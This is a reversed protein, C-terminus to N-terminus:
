RPRIISLLLGLSVSEGIWLYEPAQGASLEKFFEPKKQKMEEAWRKNNEFIRDHSVQLYKRVEKPTTAEQGAMDFYRHSSCFRTCSKTGSNFLSPLSAPSSARLNSFTSSLLPSSGSTFPFSRGATAHPLRILMTLRLFAVTIGGRWLTQQDSVARRLSIKCFATNLTSANAERRNSTKVDFSETAKNGIARHIEPSSGCDIKSVIPNAITKDNKPRLMGLDKRLM